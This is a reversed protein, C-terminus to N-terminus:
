LAGREIDENFCLTPTLLEYARGMLFEITNLLRKLFHLKKIVVPVTVEAFISELRSGFFTM